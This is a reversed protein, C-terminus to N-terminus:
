LLPKSTPATTEEQPLLLAACCCTWCFSIEMEEVLLSTSARDSTRSLWSWEENSSPDLEDETANWPLGPVPLFLLAESSTQTRSMRSSIRLNWELLSATGGALWGNRSFYEATLSFHFVAHM